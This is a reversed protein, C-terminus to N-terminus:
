YERTKKFELLYQRGNELIQPDDNFNGLALNCKQCIWGRFKNTEHDHDCCWIGKKTPNNKKIEEESRNCIPCIHNEPLKPATQKIEKLIRAHTKACPRCNYRLYNAGGDRDFMSVPLWEKCDTCFKTEEKEEFNFIKYFLSKEVM